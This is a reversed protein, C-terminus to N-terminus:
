QAPEITLQHLIPKNIKYIQDILVEMERQWATRVQEFRATKFTNLTAGVFFDKHAYTTLSDVINEGNQGYLGKLKLLSYQLWYYERLRREISWREENLHMVALAQQYQPTSQITALNIGEDLNHGTWSGILASDIKVRYRQKAKLGKVTLMEQNFQNTFPVWQLGDAQSRLQVGGGRPETDTPYPLAFAQYTVNITSGKINLNSLQCNEQKLISKSDADIIVDAVKVGSLGQAKLFLYAMVMHGDNYPHIRDKGQLTFLTDQQQHALNIAVMPRNFDVFDWRYNKAAKQQLEIIKQIAANKGHLILGNIKSTEDYPPSGIMVKRVQPHQNLAQTIKSYSQAAIAVAKQYASDAKAGSLLKYGTDNMGFTITVVTPNKSFVDTQLRDAIQGAVDGGIGANFIDIRRNPYRTMYYLWIYSHYHGGDTISNGTFVVRDGQNFPKVAQASVRVAIQIFILLLVTRKM